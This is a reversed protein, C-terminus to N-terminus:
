NEDNKDEEEEADEGSVLFFDDENELYWKAKRKNLINVLMDTPNLKLDFGVATKLLERFEEINQTQISVTTALSVYPAALKGESYRVSARFNQRAKETSGGMYEPLSGYYSIYFDHIASKEFQPDIKLVLDMLGAASPLTIGLDMDFPDISFAGVWGAAAWYLFPADDTSMMKLVGAFNKRDLLKGFGPHRRELGNILIDRGRLYLNKARNMLKEQKEFEEEKLMSAPTDLFANAYMIYLSGTKLILGSHNPISDMLTEYMKIAFPLADGVFEPDNDGTYVSSSGETTLIDAVKKMAYKNISCGSFAILTILLLITVRKQRFGM